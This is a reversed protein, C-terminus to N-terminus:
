LEAEKLWVDFLRYGLSLIVAGTFLGIFGSYMFGGLSGLFIILMPVPAGKGMMLPKLINDLLGVPIMYITLLIATTTHDTTWIYILVGLVIPFIGIQTIALILCLLTWIGAYPIGAVVFGLGACVSQIISVGLIGRVVNRITIAAITAMDFKTSNILRSFVTRAFAASQEGYALFIGSVLISIAFVFLGKGTTALLEIGTSTVSRVEEPYKQIISDAGTTLQSWFVFAKNGIVPWQKVSEPPQPIKLKGDQYNNVTTKIEAGTRVGLWSGILLFLIFIVSTILIAALMGKGKLRRKIKQHLPYLSVALIAAWIIPNFFPALIYFCWSLLFALALLQLAVHIIQKSKVNFPKQTEPKDM